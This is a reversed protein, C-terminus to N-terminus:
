TCDARITGREILLFSNQQNTTGQGLVGDSRVMIPWIVQLKHCFFNM